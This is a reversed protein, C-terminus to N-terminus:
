LPAPTPVDRIPLKLDGMTHNVSPEGTVLSEGPNSRYVHNPQVAQGKPEAADLEPHPRNTVLM